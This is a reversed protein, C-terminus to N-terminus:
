TPDGRSKARDQFLGEIKKQTVQEWANNRNGELILRQESYFIATSIDLCISNKEKHQALIIEATYNGKAGLRLSFLRNNEKSQRRVKLSTSAESCMLELLTMRKQIKDALLM